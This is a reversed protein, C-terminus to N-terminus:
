EAMRKRFNEERVNKPLTKEVRITRGGYETNNYELAKNM